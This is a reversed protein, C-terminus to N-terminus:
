IGGAKMGSDKLIGIALKKIIGRAPSVLVQKLILANQALSFFFFPVTLKFQQLSFRRQIGWGM